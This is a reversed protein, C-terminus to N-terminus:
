QKKQIVQEYSSPTTATTGTAASQRPKLNPLDLRLILQGNGNREAKLTGGLLKCFSAAITLGLGSHEAADTRATDRRWFPELLHEADLPRLDPADNSCEFVVRGNSSLRMQVMTGEPAYEIANGVINGIISKLLLASTSVIVEEAPVEVSTRLGRQQSKHQLSAVCQEVVYRMNVDALEVTQEAAESRSLSLLTTVLRQMSRLAQLANACSSTQLERDDPWNQAVSLAVMAEALPTKLEHSVDSTFRREREFAASLRDLLGNIGNEIPQLERPIEPVDVRSNLSDTGIQEVKEALVVVPRLGRRVAFFVLVAAGIPLLIAGTLGAIFLTALTRELPLKNQAVVLTVHEPRKREGAKMAEEADDTLEPEFRIGAARVSHNSGIQLNKFEPQSLTGAFKPLEASGLSHSKELPNGDPRWVQFYHHEQGPNFEPMLEDAFEFELQGSKREQVLSALARAKSILGEDFQRAFRHHVFAYMAAAM